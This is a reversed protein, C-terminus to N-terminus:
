VPFYSQVIFVSSLTTRWSTIRGRVVHEQSRLGRALKTIRHSGAKWCACQEGCEDDRGFAEDRNSVPESDFVADPGLM